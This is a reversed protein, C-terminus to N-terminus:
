DCTTRLSMVRLFYNPRRSPPKLRGLVIVLHFFRMSVYLAAKLVDHLSRMSCSQLTSIPRALGRYGTVWNGTPHRTVTRRWPQNNLGAACAFFNFMLMM